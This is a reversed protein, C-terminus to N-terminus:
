QVRDNPELQVAIHAMNDNAFQVAVRIPKKCRKIVTRWYTCLHAIQSLMNSSGLLQPLNSMQIIEAMVHNTNTEWKATHCPQCTSM